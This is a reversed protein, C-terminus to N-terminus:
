RDEFFAAATEVAVVVARHNIIIQERDQDAVEDHWGLILPLDCSINAFTLDVRKEGLWHAVEGVPEANKQAATENVAKDSKRRNGHYKDIKAIVDYERGIRQDVHKCDHRYQHRRKNLEEDSVAQRHKRKPNQFDGGDYEDYIREFIEQAALHEGDIDHGGSDLGHHLPQRKVVFQKTRDRDKEAPELPSLKHLRQRDLGAPQKDRPHPGAEHPSAAEPM